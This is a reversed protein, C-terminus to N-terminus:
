IGIGNDKISFVWQRDEKEVGVHILCPHDPSRFKVANGILNQFLQVLHTHDVMVTPLEDHTVTAGSERITGILNVLAEALARNSDNLQPSKGSSPVRSFELLDWILKSMRTAGGVANDIFKQSKEDLQTGSRKQLLELFLTVVRLPEQLDHSVVHAFEELDENSRKLKETALLLAKEATKRETIDRNSVRRGMPLDDKSHVHQCAHSIWREQGDSRLIRFELEFLSSQALAEQVHGEILVRDKPHIIRKLLDPDHLFEERTYGTIRECSPSVYILRDEESLWYEWDYTFDAVIRFQEAVQRLAEEAEMFETRDRGVCYMLGEAGYYATNWAILKYSGDKCRVRHEFDVLPKGSMLKAAAQRSRDLDDPHVIDFYPMSYLEEERWGLIRSFAPNIRKWRGDRMSAIALMDVSLDFFRNLDQNRRYHPSYDSTAHRREIGVSQTKEEASFFDWSQSNKDWSQLSVNM